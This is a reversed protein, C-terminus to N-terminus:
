FDSTIQDSIQQLKVDDIKGDSSIINETSQLLNNIKSFSNELFNLGVPLPPVLFVPTGTNKNKKISKKPICMNGQCIYGDPLKEQQIEETKEESITELKEEPKSESITEVKEEPKSESIIEMKEEPKSESITEVKEEPKSESIIEVKEEPKSEFINDLKEESKSESITEVKEEPKSEFIAELKEEGKSESVIELKEEAKFESIAQLKEEAKFKSIAELKEEGKSESVIEVKEEPKSEFIAELKEEGKSESITEVKEEPKSESITELKEEPKSEFIIEVKEEPKSESINDLKEESKSESITEVKEEPKSESINDLKEESKSESVIEVKEEPKSEFIAELKEEGKSESVTELKEKLIIDKQNKEWWDVLRSYTDMDNTASLTYKLYHQWEDVVEPRKDISKKLRETFNNYKKQVENAKKSYNNLHQHSQNCLYILQSVNAVDGIIDEKIFQEDFINNKGKEADKHDIKEKGHKLLISNFEKDDTLLCIQDSSSIFDRFIKMQVVRFSLFDYTFNTTLFIAFEDADKLCNFCALTAYSGIQPKTEDVFIAQVTFNVNKINKDPSLTFLGKIINEFKSDM